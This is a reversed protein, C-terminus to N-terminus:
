DAENNSRPQHPHIAQSQDAEDLRSTLNRQWQEIARDTMRNLQINHIKQKISSSGETEILREIPAPSPKAPKLAAQLQEPKAPFCM